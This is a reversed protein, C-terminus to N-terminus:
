ANCVLFAVDSVVIREAVAGAQGKRKEGEPSGERVVVIGNGDPVPVVNINDKIAQLAAANIRNEMFPALTM